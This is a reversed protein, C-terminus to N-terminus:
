TRGRVWAFIEKGMLIKDDVGLAPVHRIEKSRMEDMDICSTYEISNDNLLKEVMKCQPCSLTHYFIVKAEM